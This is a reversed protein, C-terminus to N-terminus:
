GHDAARGGLRQAKGYGASQLVLGGLMAWAAAVGWAQQNQLGEQILLAPAATCLLAALLRDRSQFDLRVGAARAVWWAIAPAAILWAPLARYRGDVVLVIAQWATLALFATTMTPWLLQERETARSDALAAVTRWAAGLAVMLSVVVMLLALAWEAADRPWIALSSLHAGILMGVTSWLCLGLFFAAGRSAGGGATPIAQAGSVQHAHPMGRRRVKSAWAWAVGGLCCGLVLGALAGRADPEPPLGSGAADRPEGQATLIGWAGGMAGELWRKWPQDFGEILNYDIGEVKLRANLERVFLAQERPSPRAPGRQRGAAPWGTEALWVPKGVMQSQVMKVISVVHEVAQDRAIPVDEWYPLVHIAVVDVESALIPAHRLWFEWVDAYAVPVPSEQRVERILAALEAPSREQRLLVENGVMIMRVVEPYTRAMSLATQLEQRSAERDRSIWAGLVLQLGMEAALAPIREQGNGMGYVRICPTLAKLLQLDQRLEDDRLRLTPDFPTHGDRRFPAYSLCPYAQSPSERDAISAGAGDPEGTAKPWLLAAVVVLGVAWLCAFASRCTASRM